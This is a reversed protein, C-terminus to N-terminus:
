ARCPCPIVHNHRIFFGIAHKKRDKEKGSGGMLWGNGELRYYVVVKLNWMSVLIGM